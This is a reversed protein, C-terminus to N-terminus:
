DRIHHYRLHIHKSRQNNFNKEASTFISESDKPLENEPITIKINEDELSALETDMASQWQESQTSLQAQRLTAPEILDAAHQILDKSGETSHKTLITNVLHASEGRVSSVPFMINDVPIDRGFNAAHARYESKIFKWNSTDRERTNLQNSVSARAAKKIKEVNSENIMVDMEDSSSPTSSPTCNQPTLACYALGISKLTKTTSDTNDDSSSSWNEEDREEIKTKVATAKHPHTGSDPINKFLPCETARHNVEGYGKHRCIFCSGRSPQKPKQQQNGEKHQRKRWDGSRQEGKRQEDRKTTVMENTKEVFAMIKDRPQKWSDNKFQNQEKQTRYASGAMNRVQSISIKQSTLTEKNLSHILENYMTTDARSLAGIIADQIDVDQLPVGRVREYTDIIRMLHDLQAKPEANPNIAFTSIKAQLATRSLADQPLFEEHLAKWALHGNKDAVFQRVTRNASKTTTLFLFAWLKQNTYANENLEDDDLDDLTILKVFEDPPEITIVAAEFQEKYTNLLEQVDNGEGSFKDDKLSKVLDRLYNTTSHQEAPRSPRM